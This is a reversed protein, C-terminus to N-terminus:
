PGKPHLPEQSPPSQTSSTPSGPCATGWGRSVCGYGLFVEKFRGEAQRPGQRDPLVGAHDSVVNNQFLTNRHRNASGAASGRLPLSGAESM